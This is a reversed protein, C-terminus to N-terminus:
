RRSARDVIQFAAMVLALTVALHMWGRERDGWRLLADGDLHAAHLAGQRMVLPLDHLVRM